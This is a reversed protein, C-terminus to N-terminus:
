TRVVPMGRDALLAQSVLLSFGVSSIMPLFTTARQWSMGIIVSSIAMSMVAVIVLRIPVPVRGIMTTWASIGALKRRALMAILIFGALVIADRLDGALGSLLLTAAGVKLLLITMSVPTSMPPRAGAATTRGEREMAVSALPARSPVGYLFQASLRPRAMARRELRYRLAIALAGVVGLIWGRHQLPAFAEVPALQGIRRHSGRHALPWWLVPRILIPVVLTWGYTLIAALAAWLAGIVFPRRGRSSGQNSRPPGGSTPVSRPLTEAALQRASLPIAVLALLLAYSIILPVRVRLLAVIVGLGAHDPLPHSFLFFDGLVWGCWAWLGLAASVGSLLIMASMLVVSFSFTTWGASRLWGAAFGVLLALPPAFAGVQPWKLLYIGDGLMVSLVPSIRRCRTPIEVWWLRRMAQPNM